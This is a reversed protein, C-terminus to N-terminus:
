EVFHVERSGKVVSGLNVPTTLSSLSSVAADYSDPPVIVVMGIGMNFTRFMEKENVNGLERMVKFVAPVEWASRSIEVSCKEPLIRPINETLGGGTIHALGRVDVSSDILTFVHNTYNIHPELLVEGVTGELGSVLSDTNYGGVEFYLKRALSYGNTHLGSSPLGVLIDGPQIQDGTIMKEREVFGTVIGVLDHEDKLYTDPMEATEGGVLAINSNRCGRAIGIVIEEIIGPDLRDSAIYDLFTMPRAGATIIDNTCASVLDVGITDFKKMKRAIIMKTGVGDIGQVMVPNSYDSLATKIDFLSGFGGIGSLVPQTHTGAVIEKIRDVAENGADINVGAARYDITKRRSVM